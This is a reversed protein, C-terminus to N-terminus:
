RATGTQWLCTSPPTGERFTNTTVEAVNLRTSNLQMMCTLIFLAKLWNGNQM